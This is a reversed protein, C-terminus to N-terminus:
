RGNVFRFKGELTVAINPNVNTTRVIWTDPASSSLAKGAVSSNLEYRWLRDASGKLINNQNGIDVSRITELSKPIRDGNDDCYLWVAKAMASLESRIESRYSYPDVVTRTPIFTGAVIIIAVIVVVIELIILMKRAPKM